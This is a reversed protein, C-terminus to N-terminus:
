LLAQGKNEWFGKRRVRFHEHLPTLWAYLWATMPLLEGNKTLLLLSSIAIVEWDKLFYRYEMEKYNLSHTWLLSTRNHICICSPRHLWQPEVTHLMDMCSVDMLTHRPEGVFLSQFTAKTRQQMPNSTALVSILLVRRATKRQQTWSRWFKKWDQSYFVCVIYSPDLVVHQSVVIFIKIFLSLPRRTWSTSSFWSCLLIINQVYSVWLM